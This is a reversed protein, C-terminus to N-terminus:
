KWSWTEGPRARSSFLSSVSLHLPLSSVFRTFGHFHTLQNRDRQLKQIEEEVKKLKEEVDHSEKRVQLSNRQYFAFFGEVQSLSADDLRLQVAGHPETPPPRM